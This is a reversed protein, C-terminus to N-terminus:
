NNKAAELRKDVEDLDFVLRVKAYIDTYAGSKKYRWGTGYPQSGDYRVTCDPHLDIVNQWNSWPIRSKVACLQQLPLEYLPSIDEVKTYSLNIHALSECGALASVDKIYGCYALELFELKKHDTFPTLDTIPSGSLIVIEIDKMYEIFTIDTLYENHGLDMYKVDECYKM